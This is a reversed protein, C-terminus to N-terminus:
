TFKTIIVHLLIRECKNKSFFLIHFMSWQLWKNWIRINFFLIRYSRKEIFNYEETKITNVKTLLNWEAKLHRTWESAFNSVTVRGLSSVPVGIGHFILISYSPSQGSQIRSTQRIWNRRCFSMMDKVNYM